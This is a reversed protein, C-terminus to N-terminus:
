RSELCCARQLGIVRQTTGLKTHGVVKDNLMSEAQLKNTFLPRRHFEIGEGEIYTHVHAAM